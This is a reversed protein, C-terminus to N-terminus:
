ILCGWRNVACLLSYASGLVRLRSCVVIRSGRFTTLHFPSNSGDAVINELPCMMGASRWGYQADLKSALGFVWIGYPKQNKKHRNEFHLKLLHWVGFDGHPHSNFKLLLHKAEIKVRRMALFVKIPEVSHM